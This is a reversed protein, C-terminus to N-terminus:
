EIVDWTVFRLRVNERAFWSGDKNQQGPGFFIVKRAFTDVHVKEGRFEGRWLPPFNSHVVNTVRHPLDDSDCLLLDTM